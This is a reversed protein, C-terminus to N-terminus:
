EGLIRKAQQNHRIMHAIAFEGAQFLTITGFAKTNFCYGAREASLAALAAHLRSASQRLQGVGDVTSLRDPPHFRAPADNRAPVQRVIESWPREVYDPLPPAAGDVSGDVVSALSDNVMAVHAAIQAPTWGSPAEEARPGAREIRAALRETTEELRALLDTLRATHSTPSQM